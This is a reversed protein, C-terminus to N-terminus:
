TQAEVDEKIIKRSSASLPRDEEPKSRDEFWPRFDESSFWDLYKEGEERSMPGKLDLIFDELLISDSAVSPTSSNLLNTIEHNGTVIAIDLATMGSGWVRIELMKKRQHLVFRTRDVPPLRFISVQTTHDIDVDMCHSNGIPRLEILRRESKHYKLTCMPYTRIDTNAHRKVLQDTMALSSTAAAMHLATFGDEEIMNVDAGHHLLSLACTEHYGELAFMLPTRSRWDLNNLEQGTALLIELVGHRYYVHTRPIVRRGDHGTKNVDAGYESLIALFRTLGKQAAVSLSTSSVPNKLQTDSTHRKFLIEATDTDDAKMLVEMLPTYDFIDETRVKAGAEFLLTLYPAVPTSRISAIASWRRRKSSVAMVDAGRVVLTSAAELGKWEIAICLATSGRKRREIDAGYDLLVQIAASQNGWAAFHLLQSDNIFAKTNENDKILWKLEDIFGYFAAIKCAKRTELGERMAYHLSDDPSPPELSIQTNSALFQHIQTSMHIDQNAM